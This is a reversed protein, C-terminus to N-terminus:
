RKSRKMFSEDLPHPQRGKIFVLVGEGIFQLRELEIGYEAELRKCYAEVEEPPDTYRAVGGARFMQLVAGDTM